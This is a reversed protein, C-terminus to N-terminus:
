GDPDGGLRRSRSRSFPDAVAVHFHGKRRSRIVSCGPQAISVSITKSAPIILTHFSNYQKTGSLDLTGRKGVTCRDALVEPHLWEFDRGLGDTLMQGLQVYDSTPSRWAM